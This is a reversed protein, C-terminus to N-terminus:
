ISPVFEASFKITAPAAGASTQIKLCWTDGPTYVVEYGTGQSNATRAQDAITATLPTDIGNRQITGKHTQGAGPAISNELYLNRMTGRRAIPMRAVAVNADQAFVAFTTVGALVPTGSTGIVSTSVVRGPSYAYGSFQTGVNAIKTSAAYNWDGRAGSFDCGSFFVSTVTDAVFVPALFTHGKYIYCGHINVSGRLLTLTTSSQPGQYIWPVVAFVNPSPDTSDHYLGCGSGHIYGGTWANSRSGGRVRVGISTPDQLGSPYDSACSTFNDDRELDLDFNIAHGYSLCADANLLVNGEFHFGVGGRYDNAITAVGGSAYAANTFTLTDSAHTATAPLSILANGSNHDIWAVVAGAPIAGETDTVTQGNSVSKNPASLKILRSGATTACIATPAVDIDTDVHGPGVATITCRTNVGNFGTVSSVFLPAGVICNSNDLYIRAKGAGNDIVNTVAKNITTWPQSATLFPWVEVHELVSLDHSDKLYLGCYCDLYVHSLDYQNFFDCTIGDRFGLVQVSEIAISRGQIIIGTGATEMGRVLLAGEAASAVTAPLTASIVAINRIMAADALRLTADDLVLASRITSYDVGVKSHPNFSGVIPCNEIVTIDADILLRYGDIRIEGGGAAAAAAQARQLALTAPTQGTVDAGFDKPDFVRIFPFREVELVIVDTSHDSGYLAFWPRFYVTGNPIGYQPSGIYIKAFREYVGDAVVLPVDAVTVDGVDAFVTKDASLWSFGLTVSDNIPDEPNAHRQVKYRIEYTYGPELAIAALTGVIQPDDAVAGAVRLVNGASSTAVWSADVPEITDAAGTKSTGFLEPADGPRESPAAILEPLAEAEAMAADADAQVAALADATADSIPLDAPALNSVESLGVDAKDVQHPNDTDVAHASLAANVTGAAAGAFATTALQTTATGPPATPATPVLLLAPSALPAKLDLAIQTADSIPKAADSTNNVNGLNIDAATMGHVNGTDAIHAIVDDAVADLDAAVANIALQTADSVPLAAPALNAVNGLGVQAATVSHPNAINILHAALEDDIAGVAADVFATSAIQSTATLPAATPVTPLGTLAPSAIPAKQDLAVQTALSVPQAVIAAHTADSVPLDAPALNAVNGLGVQEATVMHPNAVDALHDPLAAELDNLAAAVFSTTAVQSTAAHLVAQPATPVGTLAPSDLPARLAVEARIADLPTALARPTVASADDTGAAADAGTAKAVTIVRDATLDGGGTALGATGITRAELAAVDARAAEDYASGYIEITRTATAIRATAM